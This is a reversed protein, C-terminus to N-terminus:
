FRQHIAWNEDRYLTSPGFHAYRTSTHFHPPNGVVLDWQETAPIQELCDTLYVIVQEELHNRQITEQCAAVAKPNIDGLCLSQCLGNALLAFGIFGPGACWEFVRGTCGFSQKVRAVYDQAFSIGGGDLEHTYYIDLHAFKVVTYMIEM